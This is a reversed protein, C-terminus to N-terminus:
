SQRRSRIAQRISAFSEPAPQTRGEDLDKRSLALIKLLAMTQQTAEYDHINQLVAKAEGNQTIIIPQSTKEMEQLLEAAHAKVFSIPKVAEALKM